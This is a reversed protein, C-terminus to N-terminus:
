PHNAKIAFACQDCLDSGDFVDTNCNECSGTPEEDDDPPYLDPEYEADYESGESVYTAEIIEKLAQIGGRCVRLEAEKAAKSPFSGASRRVAMGQATELRKQWFALRSKAYELPTSTVVM